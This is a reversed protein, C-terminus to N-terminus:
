LSDRILPWRRNIEEPSMAALSERTVRGDTLCPPSLAETGLREEHLFLGSWEEQLAAVLAEENILEGEESLAAGTCRDALLAAAQPHAGRRILAERVAQM